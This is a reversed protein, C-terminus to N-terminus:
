RRSRALLALDVLPELALGLDELLEAVRVDDPEQREPRNWPVEYMAISNTWPSVRSCISAALAPREGPALHDVQADLDAVGQVVGVLVAHDM